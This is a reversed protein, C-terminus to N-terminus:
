YLLYLCLNLLQAQIRVSYLRYLEIRGAARNCLAASTIRGRENVL